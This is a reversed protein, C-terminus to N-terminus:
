ATDADPVEERTTKDWREWCSLCTGSPFFRISQGVDNVSKRCVKKTCPEGWYVVPEHRTTQYKPVDLKYTGFQGPTAGTVWRRYLSAEPSPYTAPMPQARALLLAIVETKLGRLLARLRPPFTGPPALVQLMGAQDPVVSIGLSELYELLEHATM